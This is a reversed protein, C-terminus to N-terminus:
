RCDLHPSMLSLILAITSIRVLHSSARQGISSSFVKGAKQPKIVYAEQGGSTLSVPPFSWQTEVSFM